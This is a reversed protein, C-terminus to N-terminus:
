PGPAARDAHAFIVIHHLAGFNVDQVAPAIEAGRAGLRIESLYELFGSRRPEAELAVLEYCPEEFRRRPAAPDERELARARGRQSLACVARDFIASDLRRRCLAQMPFASEWM